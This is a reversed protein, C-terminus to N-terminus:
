PKNEESKRAKTRYSCLSCKEFQRNVIKIVDLKGKGCQPCNVRTDLDIEETESYQYNSQQNELEKLRKRLHRVESKLNRIIGKYYESENREKKKAM